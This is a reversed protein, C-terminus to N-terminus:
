KNSKITNTLHLDIKRPIKIILNYPKLNPFDSNDAARFTLSTNISIDSESDSWPAEHHKWGLYAWVKCARQGTKLVEGMWPPPPPTTISVGQQKM